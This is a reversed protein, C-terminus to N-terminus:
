RIMHRSSANTKRERKEVNRKFCEECYVKNDRIIALKAPIIRGCVSCQPARSHKKYQTELLPERPTGPTFRWLVGTGLYALQAEHTARMGEAM